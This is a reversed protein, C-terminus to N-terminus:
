MVNGSHSRIQDRTTLKIPINDPFTPEAVMRVLDLKRKDQDNVLSKGRVKDEAKEYRTKLRYDEYKKADDRLRGLISAYERTADDMNGVRTQKVEEIKRAAKKLDEIDKVFAKYQKSNKWVSMAENASRLFDDLTEVLSTQKQLQEKKREMVKSVIPKNMGLKSAIANASTEKVKSTSLQPAIEKIDPKLKAFVQGEISDFIEKSTDLTAPYQKKRDDIKAMVSIQIDEYLNDLLTDLEVSKPSNAAETVQDDRSTQGKLRAIYGNLTTAFESMYASMERNSSHNLGSTKELSNLFGTLTDVLYNRIEEQDNVTCIQNNHILPM